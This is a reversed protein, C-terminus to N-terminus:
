ENKDNNVGEKEDDDIYITIDGFEEIEDCEFFDLHKCFEIAEEQTMKRLNM